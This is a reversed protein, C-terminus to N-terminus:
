RLDFLISVLGELLPIGIFYVVLGWFAIWVLTGFPSISQLINEPFSLGSTFNHYISIVSGLIELKTQMEGIFAYLQYWSNLIEFPIKILAWLEKWFLEAISFVIDRILIVLVGLIGLGNKTSSM